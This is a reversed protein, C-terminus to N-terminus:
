QLEWDQVNWALNSETTTSKPGSLKSAYVWVTTPFFLPIAPFDHDVQKAINVAAQIRDQPALATAYAAVLRDMEPTAYGAYSVSSGGSRWNNEPRPINNTTMNIIGSEGLASTIIQMGPFSSRTQVDQALAAPTASEEIEYGAQRWGSAVATMLTQGGASIMLEASLRGASPSAYVGDAGKTFGAEGMLQASQKLDLSYKTVAANAAKGVEGTPPFMSDSILFWGEFVVDNIAAKDVAYALARRVRLDQLAPPSAFEPRSQFHVAQWLAAQSFSKAGPWQRLLEAAQQENVGSDAALLIDGALMGAITTNGDGVFMIKIRSIKPPGLAHRDFASAELFAGPEWEDLRYPGLGVFETTWYPNNLLADAGSELAPGLIARPLPPLGTAGPGLSQLAGAALYPRTWRIVITRPDPAQVEDILSIPPSAASGLEPTGYVRWSFVFDDATLPSGNHWSLNPKLHYTTEMTGDSSVKWDSTNLRPLAEALYPVPEGQDDLLALDANFIRRTFFSGISLNQGVVRAAVTKPEVRVSTVLTRGSQAAETPDVTGGPNTLTSSGPKPATACATGLYVAIVLLAFNRRM